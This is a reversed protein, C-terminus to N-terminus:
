PLFHNLFLKIGVRRQTRETPTYRFQYAHAGSLPQHRRVDRIPVDKNRMLCVDRVVQYINPRKAPNERLMGAVFM